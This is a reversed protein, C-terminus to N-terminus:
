LIRRPAGEKETAIIQSVYVNFKVCNESAHTVSCMLVIVICMFEMDGIATILICM